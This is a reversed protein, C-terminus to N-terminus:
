HFYLDSFSKFLDTPDYYSKSRRAGLLFGQFRRNINVSEILSTSNKDTHKGKKKIKEKDKNLNSSPIPKEDIKKFNSDLYRSTLPTTANLCQLVSNFYCIRGINRLGFQTKSAPISSPNKAEITPKVENKEKKFNKMHNSVNKEIQEKFGKM